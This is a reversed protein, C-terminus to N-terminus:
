YRRFQKKFKEFHYDDTAKEPRNKQSSQNTAPQESKRKNSKERNSNIRDKNPDDINVTFVFLDSSHDYLFYYNM